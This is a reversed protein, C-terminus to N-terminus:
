GTVQHYHGNNGDVIQVTFNGGGLLNNEITVPGAGNPGLDPALFLAANDDDPGAVDIVNHRITVDTEGGQLQGGDAHVGDARQLDHVYSDQLLTHSGFKVGDGHTGHVDVRIASWHDFGIAAVSGGVLESDSVTVDGSLVQVAYLSDSTIRCNRVVVGTARILVEGTVDLGDIVAGPTTVTVSGSPRLTARRAAPVGTTSAGPWGSPVASTPATTPATTVSATTSTTPRTMRPSTTTPATTVPVTTPATTTPTPRHHRHWPVWAGRGAPAGAVGASATADTILWAGVVLAVGATGAAIARRRRRAACARWSGRSAGPPTVPGPQRPRFQQM